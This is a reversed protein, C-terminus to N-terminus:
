MCYLVVRTTKVLPDDDNELRDHRAGGDGAVLDERGGGGEVLVCM